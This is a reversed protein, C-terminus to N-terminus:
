CFHSSQCLEMRHDALRVSNQERCGLLVRRPGSHQRPQVSPLSLRSVCLLACGNVGVELLPHPPRKVRCWGASGLVVRGLLCGVWCGVGSVVPTGRGPLGSVVTSGPIVAVSCSPFFSDLLLLIQFCGGPRRRSKWPETM